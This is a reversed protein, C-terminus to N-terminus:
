DRDFIARRSALRLELERMVVDALDTLTELSDADFQRPEYDYVCISGLNHGDSTTLPAAAYSRVNPDGIVVPNLATRPDELADPITWPGTGPNTIACFSTNREVHDAEFGQRSKLWVRDSDIISILAVPANLLKAALRTVSDFTEEPPTGLINYRRAADLRQAEVDADIPEVRVGRRRVIETILLEQLAGAVEAPAPRKSPDRRTMGTLVERVTEPLDSPVAPDRDLRAFASREVDGPYEVRGAIAELLVLGLSYVDSAGTADAGEVQEPSLYAATGTVFEEVQPEGVMAAIGFDTLKGRLRGKSERDSLLINAPKIDRHVFGSAHLYDLAESLDLGLWCADVWPLPGNKLLERLDGGAAHEMVLYVQPHNPDSADIGADFLTTLAHHNLAAVLQAEAEQERLAEPTEARSRFVKIAAKRGLLRDTALYVLAKGGRGIVPGVTYRGEIAPISPAPTAEAPSPDTM